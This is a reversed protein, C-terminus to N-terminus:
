KGGVQGILGYMPAIIALMIGGVLLGVFVLMIPEILTTVTKLNGEVRYDQQVSIDQMSKDLTGTKEGAEIMKIIISSFINRQDKFGQSLNKGELVTEKAYKIAIGVDRRSVVEESLELANTITIGSTLLLYMSRSFRALDIEKVLNSIVPLRYVFSMIIRRQTKFLFIVMGVLVISGIAVLITHHMLGNSAFILLKTPLPLPVKLSIFITSIKPIVVILILLLVGMFVILIVIPYALAGKIKDNFEMEKQIQLRLDKLTVDLTGAEESAKVVNITVKDFVGPFKAFSSYLHQGQVIDERIVELVKKTNGKSEELLSDVTELIPIGATIMTSFNSLLGLKDSGKLTIKETKIM